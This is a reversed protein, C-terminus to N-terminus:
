LSTLLFFVVFRCSDANQKKFCRSLAGRRLAESGQQEVYQKMDIMSIKVVKLSIM